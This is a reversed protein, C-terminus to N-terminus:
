LPGPTPDTLTDRSGALLGRLEQPVTWLACLKPLIPLEHLWQGASNVSQKSGDLAVYITQADPVVLPGSPVLVVTRATDARLPLLGAVRELAYGCQCVRFTATGSAAVLHHNGDPCLPPTGITLKRLEVDARAGQCSIVEWVHSFSAGTIIAGPVLQSADLLPQQAAGSLTSSATRM